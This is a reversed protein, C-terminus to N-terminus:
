GNKEKNLSAEEIRRAEELFAEIDSDQIERSTNSNSIDVKLWEGTNPTYKDYDLEEQKIQDEIEKYLRDEQFEMLQHIFSCERHKQSLFPINYKKRWWFDIPFQNNWRIMFTKIDEVTMM